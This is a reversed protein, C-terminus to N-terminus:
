LQLCSDHIILLRARRQTSLLELLEAALPQDRPSSSEILTIARALSARCRNHLIGEALNKTSFQM